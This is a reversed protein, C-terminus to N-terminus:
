HVGTHLISLHSDICAGYLIISSVCTLACMVIVIVMDSRGSAVDWIAVTHDFSGTVLQNGVTNFCLSLVEATHGQLFDFSLM